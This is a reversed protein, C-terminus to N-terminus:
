NIKQLPRRRSAIQQELMDRAYDLMERLEENKSAAADEIRYM